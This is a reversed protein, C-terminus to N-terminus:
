DFEDPRVSINPCPLRVARAGSRVTRAKPGNSLIEVRIRTYRWRGDCVFARDLTIRAPVRLRYDRDRYVLQGTARAVERGWGSWRLREGFYHHRLGLVAPRQELAEGTKVFHTPLLAACAGFAVGVDDPVRQAACPRDTRFPGEMLTEAEAAPSGVSGFSSVLLVKSPEPDCEPVPRAAYLVYTPEYGDFVTITSCEAAQGVWGAIAEAEVM